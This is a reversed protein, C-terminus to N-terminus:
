RSKLKLIFHLFSINGQPNQLPRLSTDSSGVIRGGVIALLYRGMQPHRSASLAQRRSCGSPAM